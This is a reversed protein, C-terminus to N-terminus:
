YLINSLVHITPQVPGWEEQREMDLLSVIFQAFYAFVNLIIEKNCFKFKAEQLIQTERKM